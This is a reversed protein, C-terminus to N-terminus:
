SMVPLLKLYILSAFGAALLVAFSGAGVYRLRRWARENGTTIYPIAALPKEGFTALLSKADYIRTDVLDMVLMLVIGAVLSLLFGAAILLQRNPEIPQDPLKSSEIVSFTEGQSQQSLTEAVQADAQKDKFSQYRQLAANYQAQLGNYEAEITPTQLIREQLRAINEELSATRAYVGSIQSNVDSLQTQLQIYISNDAPGAPIPTFGGSGATSSLEDIQRRLNQVTPHKEGYRQLADSLEAQLTAAKAQNLATTDIGGLQAKMSTIQRKLRVVEPHKEGYRGSMDSYEMELALLQGQPTAARGDLMVANHPSIQGLQSQLYARKETLTQLESQTQMLQQQAQNLMQSNFTFQEPLSGSYQSKLETLKKEVSQVDGLLREAQETLFQTTGAAREQRTRSNEALYLDTLRNAVRHAVEANNHDFSLNFAISAQNQPSSRNQIQGALNVSVVELKIKNRLINLVASRPMEKLQVPYLGFDDIVANLNQATMVRQTILQLRENAFNTVTSKGQDSPVYPQDILITATSRYTPALGAVYIVTAFLGIVLLAIGHWKRRRLAGLIDINILREDGDSKMNIGNKMATM